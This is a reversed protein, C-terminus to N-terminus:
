GIVDYTQEFVDKKIVYLEGKVDRVLYDDVEGRITGELTQVEFHLDKQNGISKYGDAVLQKVEDPGAGDIVIFTKGNFQKEAVAQWMDVPIPKKVAKM